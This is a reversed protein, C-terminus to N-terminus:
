QVDIAIGHQQIYDSISTEIKTKSGQIKIRETSATNFDKYNNNKFIKKAIDIRNFLIAYGLANTKTYAQEDNAVKMEWSLQKSTDYGLDLLDYIFENSYNSSLAQIYISEKYHRGDHIYNVDINNDLLIRSAKENKKYISFLLSKEFVYNENQPFKQILAELGDLRDYKIAVEFLSFLWDKQIGSNIRDANILEIYNQDEYLAKSIDKYSTLNRRSYDINLNSIEDSSII